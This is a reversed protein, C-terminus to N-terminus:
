ALDAMTPEEPKNTSRVDVWRGYTNGDRLDEATVVRMSTGRVEEIRIGQAEFYPKAVGTLFAEDVPRGSALAKVDDASPVRANTLSAPPPAPSDNIVGGDVRENGPVTVTPVEPGPPPAVLDSMSNEGGMEYNSDIWQWGTDGSWAGAGYRNQLVDVSEGTQPFYVRDAAGEKNEVRAEVGWATLLDVLQQAANESHPDIQAMARAAINKIAGYDQHQPNWVKDNTNFGRLSDAYQGGRLGTDNYDFPTTVDGGGWGMGRANTGSTGTGKSPAPPPADSQGPQEPATATPRNRYEDSSRIVGEVGALGGTNYRHAALGGPDPDRGLLQHYLNAIDEDSLTPTKNALDAMSGGRPYPIPM